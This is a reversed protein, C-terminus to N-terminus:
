QGTRHATNVGLEAKRSTEKQGAMPLIGFTPRRSRLIRPGVKYYEILWVVCYKACYM